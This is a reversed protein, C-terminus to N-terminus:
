AEVLECDAPEPDADLNEEEFEEVDHRFQKYREGKNREEANAEEELRKLEVKSDWYELHVSVPYGNDTIAWSIRFPSRHEIRTIEFRGSSQPRGPLIGKFVPISFKRLISCSQASTINRELIKSLTAGVLVPKGTIKDIYKYSGKGKRAISNVFEVVKPDIALKPVVTTSRPQAAKHRLYKRKEADRDRTLKHYEHVCERCWSHLGDKSAACRCFNGVPQNTHCHSCTKTLRENTM